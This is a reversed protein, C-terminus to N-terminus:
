YRISSIPTNATAEMLFSYLRLLAHCEARSTRFDPTRLMWGVSNQGATLLALLIFRLSEFDSFDGPTIKRLCRLGQLVIRDELVLLHDATLSGHRYGFRELTAVAQILHTVIAYLPRIIYRPQSPKPFGRCSKIPVETLKNVKLHFARIFEDLNMSDKPVAKQLVVYHTTLKNWNVVRLVHPTFDGLMKIALVRDKVFSAQSSGCYYYKTILPPAIPSICKSSKIQAQIGLPPDAPSPVCKPSIQNAAPFDANPQGGPSSTRSPVPSPIKLSAPLVPSPTRSTLELRLSVAQDVRFVPAQPDLMRPSGNRPPASLQSNLPPASSPPLPVFGPPFYPLLVSGSPPELSRPHIAVPSQTVKLRYM